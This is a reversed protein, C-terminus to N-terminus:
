ILGEDAFSFYSQEGVIIHDLLAIDLVEGGQRIKKTLEIDSRSPKLNGSPHNHSVIIASALKQIARKYILKVDAVTGSVGGKSIQYKDLVQNNRNLAIVWFEEHSLNSLDDNVVQYASESSTIKQVDKAAMNQRRAGLEMAAILSVAKAEGIGTYKTLDHIDLKDLERLDHDSGSLVRRALQVASEKSSGSGFLIALLESNTLSKRGKLILKERPREEESWGKISQKKM